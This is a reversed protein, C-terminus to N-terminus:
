KKEGEFTEYLDERILNIIYKRVEDANLTVKKQKIAEQFLEEPISVTVPFSGAM